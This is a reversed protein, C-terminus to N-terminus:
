SVPSDKTEENEEFRRPLNGRRALLRLALQHRIDVMQKSEVSRSDCAIAFANAIVFVGCDGGPDRVSMPLHASGTAYQQGIEPRLEHAAWPISTGHAEHNVFAQLHDLEMNAKAETGGRQWSDLHTWRKAKIDLVAAVWHGHRHIPVVLHTCAQDGETAIRDSAPNEVDRAEVSAM